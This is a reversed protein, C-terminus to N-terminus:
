NPFPLLISLLMTSLYDVRVLNEHGNEPVVSLDATRMGQNLIGIDLRSVETDARRAFAQISGFSESAAKILFDHKPRFHYRCTPSNRLLFPPVIRWQNQRSM